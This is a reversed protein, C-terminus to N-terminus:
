AGTEKQGAIKPGTKEMSWTADILKEELLVELEDITRGSEVVIGMTRETAGPLDSWNAAPWGQADVWEVGADGVYNAGLDLHRLASTNSFLELPVGCSDNATHGDPCSVLRNASRALPRASAQRLGPPPRASAQRLCKKQM